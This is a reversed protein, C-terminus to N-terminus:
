VTLYVRILGYLRKSVVRPSRLRESCPFYKEQESFYYLHSLVIYCVIASQMNRCSYSNNHRWLWRYLGGGENELILNCRGCTVFWDVLHGHCQCCQPSVKLRSHSIIHVLLAIFINNLSMGNLYLHSGLLGAIHGTKANM